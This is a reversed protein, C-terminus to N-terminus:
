LRQDPLLFHKALDPFAKQTRKIAEIYLQKESKPPRVLKRAADLFDFAVNVIRPIHIQEIDIPDTPEIEKGQPKPNSENIM